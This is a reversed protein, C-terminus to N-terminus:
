VKEKSNLEEQHLKLSKSIADACSFVKDDGVGTPSPCAIGALQKAIDKIPVGHKFALAVVRAIASVQASACGGAKGLEVFIEFPANNHNNIIVHIDGCGCTQEYTNGALKKPRRQM